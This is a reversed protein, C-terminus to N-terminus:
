TLVEHHTTFHFVLRDTAASHHAPPAAAVTVHSSASPTSLNMTTTRPVSSSPVPVNTVMGVPLKVTSGGYNHQQQLSVGINRNSLDAAQPRGQM